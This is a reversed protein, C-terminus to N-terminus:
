SGLDDERAAGPKSALASQRGGDRILRRLKANLIFGLALLVLGCPIWRVRPLLLGLVMAAFGFGVLVMALTDVARLDRSTYQM